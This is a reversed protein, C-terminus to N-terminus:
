LKLLKLVGSDANLTGRNKDVGFYMQSSISNAKLFLVLQNGTKFIKPSLRPMNADVLPSNKAVYYELELKDFAIKGKLVKVVRYRVNQIASMHGSWFGPAVKVEKVEAVVIIDAGQTVKQWKRKDSQSFVSISLAFLFLIVTIIKM